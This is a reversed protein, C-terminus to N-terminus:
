IASSPNSSSVGQNVNLHVESQAISGLLHMLAKNLKHTIQRHKYMLLIWFTFKMGLIFFHKDPQSKYQRKGYTYMLALSVQRHDPAIHVILSFNSYKLKIKPYRIVKVYTDKFKLLDM